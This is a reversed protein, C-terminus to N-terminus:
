ERKGAVKRLGVEEHALMRKINIIHKYYGIVCLMSVILVCSIPYKYFFSLIPFLTYMALSGLAIYDTVITIIILALAIIIAIKINLAISVGILSAAGKGGKFGLFIPFIHGVVAFSATIFHLTYQGPYLWAVILVAATGKLMDAAATIIGYKWGLVRTVNSAGANYSGHLRIDINQKLRGVIYATQFCGILYGILSSIIIKVIEL